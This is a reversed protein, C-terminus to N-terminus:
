CPKHGELKQVHYEVLALAEEAMLQIKEADIRIMASRREVYFLKAVGEDGEAEALAQAYIDQLENGSELEKLAYEKRFEIESPADFDFPRYAVPNM